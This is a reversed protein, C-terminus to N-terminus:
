YFITEVLPNTVVPAADDAPMAKKRKGNKKARSAVIWGISFFAFGEIKTKGSFHFMYDSSFLPGNQIKPLVREEKEVIRL